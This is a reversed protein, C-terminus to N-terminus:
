ARRSEQLSQHLEQFDQPPDISFQMPKGSRPHTFGLTQAHLM